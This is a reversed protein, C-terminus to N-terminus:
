TLFAFVKGYTTMTSLLMFIIMLIKMLFIKIERSEKENNNHTPPLLANHKWRKNNEYKISLLTLTKERVSYLPEINFIKDCSEVILGVFPSGEKLTVFSIRFNIENVIRYM